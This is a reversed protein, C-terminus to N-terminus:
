ERIGSRAVYGDGRAEGRAVPVPKKETEPAEGTKLHDAMEEPRMGKDFDNSSM